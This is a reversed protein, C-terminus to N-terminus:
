PQGYFKFLLMEARSNEFYFQVSGDRGAQGNPFALSARRSHVQHIGSHGRVYLEGWAAVFLARDVKEAVFNELAVHEYARFPLASGAIASYDRPESLDVGATPLHNWRSEVIGISVRPDFGLLQNRLSSTNLTIRLLGFRGARVSIWLHDVRAPDKDHEIAFGVPEGAVRVFRGRQAILEEAPSIKNQKQKHKKSAM